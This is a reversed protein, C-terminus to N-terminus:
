VRRSRPWSARIGKSVMGGVRPFVARDLWHLVDGRRRRRSPPRAPAPTRPSHQSPASKGKTQVVEVVGISLFFISNECRHNMIQMGESEENQRYVLGKCSVEFREATDQIREVQRM